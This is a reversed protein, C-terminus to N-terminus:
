PRRTSWPTRRWDGDQLHVVPAAGDRRRPRGLRTDREDTSVGAGPSLEGGKFEDFAPQSLIDRAVTSRGRGVRPPGSRDVPLQVAPGSARAPRALHDEGLRPRRLVDARHPGPLRPRGGPASGDYRIAIPLFHFMLNPYAVEDNSRVFGGGEFHNTAGPGKRRFLWQLGVPGTAGVQAGPGGLGAAHVRVPHLGRPPGAPERRGGPLDEVVDIASAALEAANGVGSLQLLQPSNIAGGCLIVEGARVGPTGGRAGATEVGVARKGEFPGQHRLSACRVELNPRRMVPHLYARAPASAAAM